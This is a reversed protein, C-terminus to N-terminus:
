HVLPHCTLISKRAPATPRCIRVMKPRESEDEASPRDPASAASAPRTRGTQGVPHDPLIIEFAHNRRLVGSRRVSRYRARNREVKGISPVLAAETTSSRFVPSARCTSTPSREVKASGLGADSSRCRRRAAAPRSPLHAAVPRHCRVKVPHATARSGAASRGYNGARASPLRARHWAKRRPGIGPLDFIKATRRQAAPQDHIGAARQIAAIEFVAGHNCEGQRRIM